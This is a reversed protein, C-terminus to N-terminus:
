RFRTRPSPSFIRCRKNAAALAEASGLQRPRSPRYASLRPDAALQAAARVSQYVAVDVGEDETARACADFVFIWCRGGPGAAKVKDGYQEVAANVMAVLDPDPQKEILICLVGLRRPM